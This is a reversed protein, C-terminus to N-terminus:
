AKPRRVFWLGVSVAIGIVMGISIGFGFGVDPLLLGIGSGLLMGGVVGGIVYKALGADDAKPASMARTYRRGRVGRCPTARAAFCVAVIARAPAITEVYIDDRSM